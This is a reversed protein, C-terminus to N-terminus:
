KIRWQWRALGYRNLKKFLSLQTRVERLPDSPLKLGSVNVDDAMRQQRTRKPLNTHARLTRGSYKDPNGMVCIQMFAGIVEEPSEQWEESDYYVIEKSDADELCLFAGHRYLIGPGCIITCGNRLEVRLGPLRPKKPMRWDNILFRFFGYFLFLISVAGFVASITWCVHGIIQWITM